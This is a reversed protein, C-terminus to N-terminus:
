EDACEDSARTPNYFDETANGVFGVRAEVACDHGTNITGVGESSVHGDGWAVNSRGAHPDYVFDTKAQFFCCNDLVPRVPNANCLDRLRFSSERHFRPKDETHHM